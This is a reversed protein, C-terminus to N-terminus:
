DLIRLSSSQIWGITGNELQINIWDEIVDIQKVKTGEHLLFKLESINNPESWVEIEKDYIIAYKIESNKKKEINVFLTFSSLILFLLSISFFSRKFKSDNSFIYLIFAFCTMWILIILMFSWGKESLLDLISLKLNQIDTVPLTEIKDIRLNQAFSLNTLIDDDNPSISKAKEYYYNSEPINNLKYFSNGINFYLEASEFGSKLIDLYGEVANQYDGNTYLDNSEKFLDDGNQTNSFILLIFFIIRM